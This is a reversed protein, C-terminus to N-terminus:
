NDSPKLMDNYEEYQLIRNAQEANEVVIEVAHVAHALSAETSYEGIKLMRCRKDICKLAVELYRPDGSQGRVTQTKKTTKGKDDKEIGKTTANLKSREWQEWAESEILNIKEVEATLYEEASAAIKRLWMKRAYKLDNYVSNVPIKVRRGIDRVSVGQLYLKIVDPLREMRQHHLVKKEAMSMNGPKKPKEPDNDAM